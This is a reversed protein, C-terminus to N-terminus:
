PRGAGITRAKRCGETSIETIHRSNTQILQPIYVDEKDSQV